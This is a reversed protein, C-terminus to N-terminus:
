SPRPCLANGGCPFTSHQLACSWSGSGGRHQVQAMGQALSYCEHVFTTLHPPLPDGDSFCLHSALAGDVVHCWVRNQPPAVADERTPALQRVTERHLSDTVGWSVISMVTGQYGPMTGPWPGHELAGDFGGRHRVGTPLSPAAGTSCYTAFPAEGGCVAFAAGTGDVPHALAGLPVLLLAAALLVVTAGPRM